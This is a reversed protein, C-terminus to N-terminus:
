RPLKLVQGPHIKSPDTIKNLAALAKVTTGFKAAIASLTDGSKVKYTAAKQGAPTPTAKPGTPVLTPSAGPTANPSPRSTAPARSADAGAVASAVPTPSGIPLIAGSPGGGSTALRAILIAAFALALLAVLAGQGIGPMAAIAPLQVSWRGQDLVIPTTRAVPRRTATTRHGTARAEGAALYTACMEHEATLCLRRQKEVALPAAPSVATCRHERVAVISRWGGDAAVLFPCIDHTPPGPAESPTEASTAAGPATRGRGDDTMASAYGLV